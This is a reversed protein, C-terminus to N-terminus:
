SRGVCGTRRGRREVSNLKKRHEQHGKQDKERIEKRGVSDLKGRKAQVRQQDKEKKKKKKQALYTEKLQEMNAQEVCSCSCQPMNIGATCLQSLVPMNRLMFSSFYCKTHQKNDGKALYELYLKVAPVMFARKSSCAM